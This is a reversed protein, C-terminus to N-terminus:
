DTSLNKGRVTQQTRKIYLIPSLDMFLSNKKISGKRYSRLANLHEFLFVSVREM